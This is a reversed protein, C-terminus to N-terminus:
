VLLNRYVKMWKLSLKKKLDKRKNKKKNKRKNMLMMMSLKYRKITGKLLKIM